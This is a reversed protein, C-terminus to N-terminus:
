KNCLLHSNLFNSFDPDLAVLHVNNEHKKIPATEQTAPALFDKLFPHHM